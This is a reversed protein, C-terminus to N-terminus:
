EEGQRLLAIVAARLRAIEDQLASNEQRLRAEAERARALEDRQAQMIRQLHRM